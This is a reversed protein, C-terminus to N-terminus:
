HFLGLHLLHAPQHLLTEVMLSGVHTPHTLVHYTFLAIEEMRGLGPLEGCSSMDMHDHGLESLVPRVQELNVSILVRRTDRVPPASRWADRYHHNWPRSENSRRWMPPDDRSRSRDPQIRVYDSSYAM